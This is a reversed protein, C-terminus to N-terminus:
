PLGTRRLFQAPTVIALRGVQGLALLDKDGTILFDVQEVMAYALLYDDKRDRTFSEPHSSLPVPSYGAATVLDILRTVQNASIREALYPKNRCTEVVEAVLESPIIPEYDPSLAHVVARSVSSDATSNLLYSILVNADM